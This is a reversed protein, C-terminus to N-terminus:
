SVEIFTPPQYGSHGVQHKVLIGNIRNIRFLVQVYVGESQGIKTEPNIESYVIDEMGPVFWIRDVLNEWLFQALNTLNGPKPIVYKGDLYFNSLEVKLFFNLNEGDTEYPLKDWSVRCDMNLNKDDNWTFGIKDYKDNIKQAINVLSEKRIFAYTNPFLEHGNVKIELSYSFTRGFFRFADVILNEIKENFVQAVYSQNPDPLIVNVVFRLADSFDEEDKIDVFEYIFGDIEVPNSFFKRLIKTQHTLNM